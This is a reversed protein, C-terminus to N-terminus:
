GRGNRTKDGNSVSAIAHIFQEVMRANAFYADYVVEFATPLGTGFLEAARGKPDRGTLGIKVLGKLAPNFLVYVYGPEQM